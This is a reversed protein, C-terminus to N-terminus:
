FLFTKLRRRFTLLLPSATITPPLDNWARAAAAPFARDGLTTRRTPPVVLQVTHTPRAARASTVAVVTSMPLVANVALLHTKM